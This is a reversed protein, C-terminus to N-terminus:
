RGMHEDREIWFHNASLEDLTGVWQAVDVVRELELGFADLAAGTQERPSRPKWDPEADHFWALFITKRREGRRLSLEFCPLDSVGKPSYSNELELFHLSEARGLLARAEGSAIRGERRGLEKVHLEGVYEVRGDGHITFSYLVPIGEGVGKSEFRLEFDSEEPPIEVPTSSPARACAGLVLAAIWAPRSVCERAADLVHQARGDHIREGVHKRELSM